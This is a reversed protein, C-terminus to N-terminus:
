AYYDDLTKRSLQVLYAAVDLNPKVLEGMENKVGNEYIDRWKKVKDIVYEITREKVRKERPKM